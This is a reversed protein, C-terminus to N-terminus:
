TQFIERLVFNEIIEATVSDKNWIETIISVHDLGSLERIEANVGKDMLEEFFHISQGKMFRNEKEGFLILFGPANKNVHKIPSAELRTKEDDGFASSFIESFFPPLPEGQKKYLRFVGALAIIGTINLPSLNHKSLYNSDLALLSALHAGASHGCIFINEPNGGYEKINNYVWAFASACDEVHAPHIVDPSLRYNIIVGVMGMDKLAEGLHRFLAKDGQSWAGGHVYIVVPRAQLNDEYYLDLLYKKEFRESIKYSINMKIM